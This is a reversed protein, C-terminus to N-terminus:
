GSSAPPIAQNRREITMRMGYRPRLTIMPRVDIQQNPDLSFKWNRAISAILL